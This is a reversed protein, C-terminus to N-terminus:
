HVVLPLYTTDAPMAPYRVLTFDNTSNEWNFSYGAVVIKDDSQVILANAGADGRGFSTLVKGNVGFTVDISGNTNYRALAIDSGAKGVAILKGDSQVSLAQLNHWSVGFDTIVKGGDGFGGDLTGDPNYRALAFRQIADGAVIIKSDPTVM